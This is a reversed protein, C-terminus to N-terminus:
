KAETEAEAFFGQASSGPVLVPSLKGYIIRYNNKVTFGITVVTKEAVTFTVPEDYVPTTKGDVVIYMGYTDQSCSDNGTSLTYDGPELEVTVFPCTYHANNAIDNDSHKDSLVISGDDNWRIKLGKGSEELKNEYKDYKLLNNPNLPKEAFLVFVAGMLLAGCLLSVVFTFVIKWRDTSKRQTKHNEYKNKRYSM